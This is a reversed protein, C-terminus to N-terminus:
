SPEPPIILKKLRGSGAAMDAWEAVDIEVHAFAGTPYPKPFSLDDGEPLLWSLYQELSPNHGVFMARSFQQGLDQIKASLWQWSPLYLGEEFFVLSFSPIVTALGELTERTRRSPSCFIVDPAVNADAHEAKLSDELIAVMQRGVYSLPRDFDEFRPDLYAAKAHRIM